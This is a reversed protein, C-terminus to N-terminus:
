AAMIRRYHQDAVTRFDFPKGARQAYSLNASARNCALCGRGDKRERLNPAVLKHGIPCCLRKRMPHRGNRVRDRMNENRTDWRLNVLRNDTADDNEHCCEQGPPCAGIFALLVLEHVYHSKGSIVVTLRGGTNGPRLIKGKCCMSRGDKRMVIRDISRICGLDSAEYNMYGPIPRWKGLLTCDIVNSEEVTPSGRCHALVAPAKVAM